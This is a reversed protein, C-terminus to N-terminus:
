EGVSFEKIKQGPKLTVIVKHIDPRRGQYKGRRVVKGSINLRHMHTVDVGFLRKVESSVANLSAGDAIKFTYQGNEALKMSKETVVASLIASM